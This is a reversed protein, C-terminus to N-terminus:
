WLNNRLTSKERETKRNGKRGRFAAVCGGSVLYRTGFADRSKRWSRRRRGSRRGIRRGGVFVGCISWDVLPLLQGEWCAATTHVALWLSQKPRSERVMLCWSTHFPAAFLRRHPVCWGSYPAAFARSGRVAESELFRTPTYGAKCLGKQDQPESLAESDRCM